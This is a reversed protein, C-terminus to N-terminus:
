MVETELHSIRTELDDDKYVLETQVDDIKGDLIMYNNELNYIASDIEDIKKNIKRVFEKLDKVDDRMEELIDIQNAKMNM